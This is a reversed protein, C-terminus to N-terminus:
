ESIANVTNHVAPPAVREDTLYERRMIQFLTPVEAIPVIPGEASLQVNPSTFVVVGYVPVRDLGRKKLFKRLAYIDKVCERTPNTKALRLKGNKMIRWDARENRWEGPYDVIRFVLAGPPGILIADVYGVGRKSVNRLYTYRHDLFGKLAEGIAHASENDKQLTMARFIGFVGVLVALFGLVIMLIRFIDFLVNEWLPLFFFLFGLTIAIAGGFFALIGLFLYFRGRRAISSTPNINQM